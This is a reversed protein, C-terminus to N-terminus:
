KGDTDFINNVFSQTEALMAAKLADNFQPYLTADKPRDPVQELSLWELFFANMTDKGKPDALMRRVQTEVDAEAALKNAAAADFLARDPMSRWVFYSLRSATEYPGLHAVNGELTAGQPGLEWHYLFPASQLMAEVMLRIGGTYDL